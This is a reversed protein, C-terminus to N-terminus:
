KLFINQDIGLVLQSRRKNKAMYLRKHKQRGKNPMKAEEVVEILLRHVVDLGQM